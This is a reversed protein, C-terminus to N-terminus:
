SGEYKNYYDTYKEAEVIGDGDEDLNFFVGKALEKETLGAKGDTNWEELYNLNRLTNQAAELSIQKDTNGTIAEFRAEPQQDLGRYYAGLGMEWENAKIQGDGDEDMTRVYSQYFEDADVKGDKNQDWKDFYSSETFANQFTDINLFNDGETATGSCAVILFTISVGFFINLYKM